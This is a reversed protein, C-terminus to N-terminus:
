WVLVRFQLETIQGHELALLPTDGIRGDPKGTMGGTSTAAALVGKSDTAAAGVTGM